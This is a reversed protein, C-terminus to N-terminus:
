SRKRKRNERRAATKGFGLVVGLEAAAATPTAQGGTRHTTGTTSETSQKANQWADNERVVQGAGNTNVKGFIRDLYDRVSPPDVLLKGRCYGSRIEGDEILRRVTRDSVDIVKATTALSWGWALDDM